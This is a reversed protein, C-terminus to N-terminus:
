RLSGEIAEERLRVKLVKGIANRPLADLVRIRTPKKYSAIRATVHAAIEELTPPDGADRPVIVACPTEGWRDHPVGIIAVEAVKPHSGIVAEVEASYINEGGSVIMDKKRDVVWVFGNEDARCLDGSHFWGGTMAEATSLPDNWYGLFVKPGQYVIEGIEGVPVDTMTDDVIRFAMGVLVRGVSGAHAAEGTGALMTVAACTETQGFTSIATATPFASDMLELTHANPPAAGWVLRRLAPAEGNNLVARCIEDWQSPVFMAATAHVRRLDELVRSADFNGTDSLVATGGFHLYLLVGALGGIHFLPLGSYWVEDPQSIGMAIQSAVSGAVLNGHSLVAGKPRGTTGSTFLIVAPWDAAHTRADALPQADGLAHALPQWGDPCVEEDTICVRVPISMTAEDHKEALDREAAIAAVGATEIQYRVEEPTLRINLPVAIAGLRVIGFFLDLVELRNPSLLAVRDGAGIGRQRLLGAFRDANEDLQTYTRSREGHILAVKHPARRTLRRLHTGWDIARASRTQDSVETLREPLM